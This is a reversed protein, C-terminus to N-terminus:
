CTSCSDDSAGARSGSELAVPTGAEVSAPIRNGCGGLTCGGGQCNGTGGCAKTREYGWPRQVSNIAALAEELSAFRATGLTEGTTHRLVFALWTGPTETSEAVGGMLEEDLLFGARYNQENLVGAM